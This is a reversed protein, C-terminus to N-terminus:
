GNANTPYDGSNYMPGPSGISSISSQQAFYGGVTWLTEGLPTNTIPANGSGSTMMNNIQNVASSMNSAAVAIKVKGGNDGNYFTLGLRARTGVVNQLVGAVPQMSTPVAVNLNYSGISTGNTSWPPLLRVRIHLLHLLTPIGQPFNFM